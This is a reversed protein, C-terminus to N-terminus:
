CKNKHPICFNKYSIRFYSMQYLVVKGLDPHGTRARDEARFFEMQFSPNKKVGPHHFQYVRGSKYDPNGCRSKTRKKLINVRTTSSTSVCSKFDQEGCRSHPNLEWGPYLRLLALQKKQKLM